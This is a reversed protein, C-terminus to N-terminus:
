IELWGGINKSLFKTQRIEVFQHNFKVFCLATAGLTKCGKLKTQRLSSSGAQHQFLFFILDKSIMSVKYSILLRSRAQGPRSPFNCHMAITWSMLTLFPWYEKLLSSMRKCQKKKQQTSMNVLHWNQLFGILNKLKTDILSKGGHGVRFLEHISDRNKSLRTKGDM